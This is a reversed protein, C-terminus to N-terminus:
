TFEDPAKLMTELRSCIRNKLAFLISNVIANQGLGNPLPIAIAM